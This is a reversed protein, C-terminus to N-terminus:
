PVLRKMTVILGRQDTGVPEWGDALLQAIMMMRDRDREGVYGQMATEYKKHGTAFIEGLIGRMDGLSPITRWPTQSIPIGGTSDLLVAILRSEGYKAGKKSRTEEKIELMEITM